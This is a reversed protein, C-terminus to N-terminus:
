LGVIKFETRRNNARGEPTDNTDIPKSLGYGKYSLRSAEIQHNILYNYVTKARNESLKQNYDASGQNDTHGGIEIAVNTNLNLFSILKELEIKSQPKLTYADLEFFINKLVTSAGQEIPYLQIDKRLPTHRHEGSLSFHDSYPLYGQKSINLMYDKHPPLCLLYEGTVEESQPEMIIEGSELDILQIVAKLPEKTKINSIIGEIYSVYEPRAKKHLKFSYIDLGNGDNARDSSILAVEGSVNVFLSQEDAKTNIPYGINVPKTWTTDNIKTAKFIDLGGMGYHGSSVFYLTKNDPHMFPSWEIGDTNISDGLNIPESWKEGDFHSLWLDELGRTGKRNSAFYITKGDPSLSPQRELNRTNIPKGINKPKTWVNGKKRSIYLDCRGFGDKRNCATYVFTKGDASISPAGENKPTNLPRNMNYAVGWTSDKELYNVFFDEQANRIKHYPIDDRIPFNKTTYLMTGNATLMPWYDDYPSNVNEGLNIPEFPVPNNYLENAVSISELMKDINARLRKSRTGIKATEQIMEYAKGYQGDNYYAISLLYQVQVSYNRNIRLVKEYEEAEKDFRNQEYYIQGKLLYAEIFNADFDLADNILPFAEDAKGIEYLSQAQKYRKIAKKHKTSLTSQASLSIIIITLLSTLVYRM